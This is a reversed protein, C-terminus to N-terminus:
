EERKVRDAKKHLWAENRAKWTPCLEEKIPAVWNAYFFGWVGDSLGRPIRISIANWKTRVDKVAANFHRDSDKVGFHSYSERLEETLLDFFVEQGNKSFGKELGAKKIIEKPKM